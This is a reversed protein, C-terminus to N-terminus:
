LGLGPRGGRDIDRTVVSVFVAPYSSYTRHHPLVAPAVGGGVRNAGLFALFTGRPAPIQCAGLPPRRGTARVFVPRRGAQLPTRRRGQDPLRSVSQRAGAAAARRGCGAGPSPPHLRNQHGRWRPPTGVVARHPPNESRHLNEFERERDRIPREHVALVEIKVVEPAERQMRRYERPTLDARTTAALAIVVCFSLAFFVVRIPRTTHPHRVDM